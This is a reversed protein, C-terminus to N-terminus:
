AVNFCLWGVRSTRNLWLTYQPLASPWWARVRDSTATSQKTHFETGWKRLYQINKISIKGIKIDGLFGCKKSLLSAM